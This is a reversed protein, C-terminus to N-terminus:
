NSPQATWGDTWAPAGPEFAGRYTVTAFFGQPDPTPTATAATTGLPVWGPASEAFVQPFLEEVSGLELNGAGAPTTLFHNEEVYLKGMSDAQGAAPWRGFFTSSVITLAGSTISDATEENDIDVLGQAAGEPHAVLISDSLRLGTGERLRAGRQSTKSAILTLNRVTPGSPAGVTQKLDAYGDAEIANDGRNEDVLLSDDHQQIAVFQARGAWGEDWDISDDKAGTVVVHRLDVTGGFLEIGDDSGLHSQVYDIVTGRGCAGVTLGNLESGGSLEFGAFEIRVYKLTGCDWEADGGPTYVAGADPEAGPTVQIPAGYSSDESPPLGEIFNEGIANNSRLGAPVNTPARGLLVVGGWDGPARQGAPKSSTFVIPAAATGEALIRGSRTVVLAGPLVGAELNGPLGVIQTGPAITLTARLEATGRVFIPRTLTYRKCNWTTASTIDDKVAVGEGLTDACPDVAPAGGAGGAGGISAAGSSGGAAAPASAGGGGGAATEVVKPDVDRNCALSVLLWTSCVCTRLYTVRWATTM